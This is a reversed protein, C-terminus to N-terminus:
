NSVLLKNTLENAIKQFLKEREVKYENLDFDGTGYYSLYLSALKAKYQIAPTNSDEAVENLKDIVKNIDADPYYKQLFVTNYITAEVVGEVEHDLSSVINETVIKVLEPKQGFTVASGLFLLTFLVTLTKITKM